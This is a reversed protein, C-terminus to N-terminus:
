PDALALHAHGDLDGPDALRAALDNILLTGWLYHGLALEEPPTPRGSLDLKPKRDSLRCPAEALVHLDHTLLLREQWYRDDAFLDNVMPLSDLYSQYGLAACRYGRPFPHRHGIEFQPTDGASLQRIEPGLRLLPDWVTLSFLTKALDYVPDWHTTSGRPDIIRFDSPDAGILTNRINADGHAPFMLRAPSIRDLRQGGHDLLRRLVTRASDCSVGNIVLRDARVAEPLARELTPLRRLFRGIHVDALHGPPVPVSDTAYGGLLDRLIASQQAFFLAVGGKGSDTRDTRLCAAADVSPFFPTTYAAWGDGDLQDLIPLYRQALQPAEARIKDIQVRKALFSGLDHGDVAGPQAVLIKVAVEGGDAARARYVRAPSGGDLLEAGVELGLRSAVVALASEDSWRDGRHSSINTTSMPDDGKTAVRGSV